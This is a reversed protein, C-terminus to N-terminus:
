VSFLMRILLVLMGVVALTGCIYPVRPILWAPLFIDAILDHGSHDGLRRTMLTIPCRAGNLLFIATEALVLFIAVGLWSDEHGSFACWLIYFIAATEILFILTHVLKLWFIQRPITLLTKM